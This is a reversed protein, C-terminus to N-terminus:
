LGRYPRRLRKGFRQILIYLVIIGVIFIWWLFSTQDPDNTTLSTFGEAESPNMMEYGFLVFDQAYNRNIMLISDSNLYKSYDM